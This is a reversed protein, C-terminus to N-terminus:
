CSPASMVVYITVDLGEAFDKRSQMHCIDAATSKRRKPCTARQSPELTSAIVPEALEAGGKKNHGCEIGVNCYWVIEISVLKPRQTIQRM